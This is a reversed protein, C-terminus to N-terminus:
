ERSTELDRLESRTRAYISSRLFSSTLTPRSHPLPRLPPNRCSSLVPYSARLGHKYPVISSRHLLVIFLSLVSFQLYFSLSVLPHPLPHWFSPESTPEPTSNHRTHLIRAIERRYSRCALRAYRPPFLCRCKADVKARPTRRLINATTALALPLLAAGSIQMINICGVVENAATVLRGRNGALKCNCSFFFSVEARASHIRCDM